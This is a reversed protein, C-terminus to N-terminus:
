KKSSQREGLEKNLRELVEEYMESMEKQRSGYYDISAEFSAKSEGYSQLLSDGSKIMLKHYRAPTVYESQVYAELKTFETLITTMKEKPILNDPEDLRKIETACSAFFVSGLIWWWKM